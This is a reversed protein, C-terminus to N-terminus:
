SQFDAPSRLPHDRFARYASPRSYSSRPYRRHAPGRSHSTRLQAGSGPLIFPLYLRASHTNMFASQFLSLYSFARCFGAKWKSPLSKEGILRYPDAASFEERLEEMAESVHDASFCFRGNEDYVEIHGMVYRLEFREMKIVGETTHQKRIVHETYM